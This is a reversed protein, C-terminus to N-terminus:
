QTIKIKIHELKYKIYNIAIIIQKLQFIIFWVMYKMIHIFIKHISKFHITFQKLYYYKNKEYLFGRVKLQHHLYSLAYVSPNDLAPASIHGFLNSFPLFARSKHLKEPYLVMQEPSITRVFAAAPRNIASRGAFIFHPTARHFLIDMGRVAFADDAASATLGELGTGYLALELDFNAGLAM